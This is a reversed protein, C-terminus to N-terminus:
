PEWVEDVVELLAPTGAQVWMGGTTRPGGLRVELGAEASIVAGAAVDWLSTRRELYGDTYGLAAFCLGVTACRYEAVGWGADRLHRELAGIGAAEWYPGEGISAIAIQSASREPLARGNCTVGGGASAVLLLDLTPLSIVGLQPEDDVLYGISTGWLPSGRLYNATGDIPDVCWFAGDPDGGLEEGMVLDGPFAARLETRILSEVARDAESVVDRARKHGVTLPAGADRLALARQGAVQAVRTAVSRRQELEVM